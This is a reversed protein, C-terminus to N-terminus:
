EEKKTFGGGRVDGGGEDRKGIREPRPERLKGDRVMGRAEDMEDAMLEGDIGFGEGLLRLGDMWILGDDDFEVDRFREFCVGM